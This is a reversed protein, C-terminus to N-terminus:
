TNSQTERLDVGVNLLAGSCPTYLCALFTQHKICYQVVNAANLRTNSLKQDAM